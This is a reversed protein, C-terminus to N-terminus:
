HGSLQQYVGLRDVIQWHGTIRDGEFYYVTAGSMHITKGTASFGPFDGTHTGTWTWTIAVATDNIFLEQIDFKQDPFPARSVRVREKYEALNLVKHDWPDGPDHHITYKQAIYEDVRDINGENWVEQIFDILIEKKDTNKLM